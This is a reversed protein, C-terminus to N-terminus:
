GAKPRELLHLQDDLYSRNQQDLSPDGLAEELAKRKNAPFV